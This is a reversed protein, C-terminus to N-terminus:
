YLIIAHHSQNLYSSVYLYGLCILIKETVETGPFQDSQDLQDAQGSHWCVVAALMCTLSRVQSLGEGNFPPAKQVPDEKSM